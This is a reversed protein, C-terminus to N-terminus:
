EETIIETRKPDIIDSDLIIEGISKARIKGSIPNKVSDIHSVIDCDVTCLEFALDTNILTCNVMKLNEIYCLGQNSELTCNIFTLNKSNWGLYEGEIYSDRVTVNETNWFADKSILRSSCIEINKGGDFAYNGDLSLNEAYVGDANMGFYDGVAKVDKIRVDRCGWLTEEANPMDTRLLSIGSSRRFTKPAEILSDKFSIGHTYWIGSRATLRLTTNEASVGKCYWLPYKWRFESNKIDLESSEKLPSEGDEFVCGDVTAGHTNYLAREGTYVGNKYEKM